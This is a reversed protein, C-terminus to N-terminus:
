PQVGVFRREFESLDPWVDPDDPVALNLPPIIPAAQDFPRKMHWTVANLTSATGRGTPSDDVSSGNDADMVAPNQDPPAPLSKEARIANFVPDGKIKRNPKQENPWHLSSKPLRRHGRYWCREGDIIRYTWYSKGDPREACQLAHAPVPILWILLVVGVAAVLLVFLALSTDSNM